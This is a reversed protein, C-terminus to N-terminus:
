TRVAREAVTFWFSAGAGPTGEAGVDGGHRQVIRKVTALGVGDGPFESAPHLRQFPAFLSGIMRMDFGAGNDKVCWAIRGDAVTRGHVEIVTHPRHSTYKWANGLLNELVRRLLTPDGYKLLGSEVSVTALRQPSAARLDDLIFGAMQSLDVAQRSLPLSGLRNLDLLVGIMSDMRQAASLIRDLHDNGRKDLDPGYDEKLIRAFGEIVRLPARLDHSLSTGPDLTDLDATRAPGPDPLHAPM